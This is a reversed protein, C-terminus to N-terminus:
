TKDVGLGFRGFMDLHCTVNKWPVCKEFSYFCLGLNSVGNVEQKLLLDLYHRTEWRYGM